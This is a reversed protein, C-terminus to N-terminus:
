QMLIRYKGDEDILEWQESKSMRNGYEDTDNSLYKIFVVLSTSYSQTFYISRQYGINRKNYGSMEMVFDPFHLKERSEFAVLEYALDYRETTIYELFNLVVDAPPRHQVFIIGENKTLSGYYQFDPKYYQIEKGGILITVKDINDLDTLSNVISWIVQDAFGHKFYSTYTIPLAFNVICKKDVLSSELIQVNQDVVTFLHEDRPGNILEGVVAKVFDNDKVKITRTEHELMKEDNIFYLKTTLKMESSKPSIGHPRNIYNVTSFNGITFIAVVVIASLVVLFRLSTKM